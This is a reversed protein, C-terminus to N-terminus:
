PRDLSPKPPVVTLFSGGWTGSPDEPNKFTASSTELERSFLDCDEAKNDFRAVFIQLSRAVAANFTAYRDFEYRGNLTSFLSRGCTSYTHVVVLLDAVRNKPNPPM